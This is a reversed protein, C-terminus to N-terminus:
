TIQFSGDATMSDVNLLPEALITLQFQLAPVTGVWNDDREAIKELKNQLDMGVKIFKTVAEETRAIANNDNGSVVRAYELYRGLTHEIPPM